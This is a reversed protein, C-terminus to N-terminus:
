AGVYKENEMKWNDNTMSGPQAEEIVFSLQFISFPFHFQSILSIQQRVNRPAINAGKRL